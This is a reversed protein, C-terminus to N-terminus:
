DQCADKDASSDPCGLFTKFDMQATVSQVIMAIELYDLLWAAESIHM